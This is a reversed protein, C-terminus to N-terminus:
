AGGRALIGAQAHGGIAFGDVVAREVAGLRRLEALGAKGKQERLHHCIRLLAYLADLLQFVPVDM